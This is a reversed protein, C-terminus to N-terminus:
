WRLLFYIQTHRAILLWYLEQRKVEFDQVFTAFISFFEVPSKFQNNNVDGFYKIIDAFGEIAAKLKDEVVTFHCKASKLFTESIVLYTDMDGNLEGYKKAKYSETLKELQGISRRKEETLERLTDLSVQSVQASASLDNVLALLEPAETELFQHLVLLLNMKGDASRVDKM